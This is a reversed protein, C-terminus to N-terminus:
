RVRHHGNSNMPQTYEDLGIARNAHLSVSAPPKGIDHNDPNLVSVERRGNHAKVSFIRNREMGQVPPTQPERKNDSARTARDQRSM